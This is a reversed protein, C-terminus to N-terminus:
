EEKKEGDKPAAAKEAKKRDKKEQKTEKKVDKKDEKEDQPKMAPFLLVEKINMQNTLMMTLRDIGLGWGATPPLGYELSTIFGEDVPQAEDDGAAKDAAQGEFRERQTMPSNLETYANCVEKRMVFLEFRETIDENDRHWKALPSMVKPHDCIFTPNVCQSELYHDVLKDLLRANTHPPECKVDAKELAKMLFATAEKSELPSPFKEGVIKELEPIMHIRRFPPKFDIVYEEKSKGEKSDLTFPVKYSGFLKLVLSSVMEETERMLDYYDAYAWYFECSTFEPNHTLDIGENRFNRGIEYVRELGGVICMKLHLEPAVRMFMELDLDNHRTIFPRATAGGALTNMMPTEVELFGRTDLYERIHRIITSRTEFTKRNKVNVILDLYRQRYRQEQDKFGYHDTPLMKLCPTLLTLSKAFISLEGTKSKGPVGNIGIIDGRRFMKSVEKFKADDGEFVGPAMVVQCPVGNGIIDFFATKGTRASHIRGAIAEPKDDLREGEGVAEAYKKVYEEVTCTTAFKHPYADKKEGLKEILAMREALYAAEGTLVVKKEKVPAMQSRLDKMKNVLEAYEETDKKDQKQLEKVQSAVEAIQAKLDAM